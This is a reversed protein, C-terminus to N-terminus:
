IRENNASTNIPRGSWCKLGGSQPIHHAECLGRLHENLRSSTAQASALQQELDAVRDLLEDFTYPTPETM